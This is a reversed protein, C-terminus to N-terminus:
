APHQDKPDAPWTNAVNDFNVNEIRAAGACSFTFREDIAGPNRLTM